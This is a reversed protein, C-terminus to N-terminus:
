LQEIVVGLVGQMTLFLCSCSAFFLCLFNNNAFVHVFRCPCFRVSNNKAALVFHKNATQRKNGPHNEALVHSWIRAYALFSVSALIHKSAFPLM